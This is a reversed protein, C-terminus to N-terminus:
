LVATLTNLASSSVAACSGLAAAVAARVDEDDDALGVLLQPLCIEIFDQMHPENFLGALAAASEKRVCWDEDALAELLRHTILSTVYSSADRTGEQGGPRANIALRGLTKVTAERVSDTGEELM